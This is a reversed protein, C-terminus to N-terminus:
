KGAIDPSPGDRLANAYLQRDIKAKMKEHCAYAKNGFLLQNEIGKNGGAFKQSLKEIEPSAFHVLSKSHAFKNRIEKIVLLNARTDEDILDFAYAIAIKASFSNLPGYGSFLDEARTNSLPRMHTLLLHEVWDELNAATVLAEGAESKQQLDRFVQALDLPPEIATASM